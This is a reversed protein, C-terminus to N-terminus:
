VVQHCGNSGSEFSKTADMQAYDICELGTRLIDIAEGQMMDTNSLLVNSITGDSILIGM